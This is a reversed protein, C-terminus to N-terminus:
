KRRDVADALKSRSMLARCLMACCLNRCSTGVRHFECSVMSYITEDLLSRCDRQRQRFTTAIDGLVQASVFPAGRAVNYCRKFGKRSAVTTMDADRYGFSDM